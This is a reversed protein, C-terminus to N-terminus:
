KIQKTIGNLKLQANIGDILTQSLDSKLWDMLDTPDTFFAWSSVRLGFAKELMLFDLDNKLYKFINQIQTVNNTGPGDMYEFLEDAWGDYTSNPYTKKMGSATLATVEAQETVTRKAEALFSKIWKVAFYLVVVIILVVILQQGPTLKKWKELM